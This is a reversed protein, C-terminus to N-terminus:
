SEVVSVVFGIETAIQMQM